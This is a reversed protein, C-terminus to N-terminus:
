FTLYLYRRAYKKLYERLLKHLKFNLFQDQVDLNCQFFGPLLARLMEKVTPLGFHLAYLINNLGFSTGNYVMWVDMAGKDVSFFSTDSVVEGARIYDGRCINVVKARMLEHKAPDKHRSQAKLYPAGFTGTLYHPQGDRVEKQYKRPWNWFLPALEELWEFWNANTCCWIANHGATITSLGEDSGQLM